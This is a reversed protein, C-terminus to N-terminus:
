FTKLLKGLIDALAMSGDISAHYFFCSSMHLYFLYGRFFLDIMLFNKRRKISLESLMINFMDSACKKDHWSNFSIFPAPFDNQMLIAAMLTSSSLFIRRMWVLSYFFPMKLLLSTAWHSPIELNERTKFKQGDMLLINLDLDKKDKM